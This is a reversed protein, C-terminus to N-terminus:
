DIEEILKKENWKIIKKKIKNKGNKSSFGKIKLSSTNLIESSAKVKFM